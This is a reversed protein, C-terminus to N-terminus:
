RHWQCAALSALEATPNQCRRMHHVRSKRENQEEQTTMSWLLEAIIRELDNSQCKPRRSERLNSIRDTPIPCIRSATKGLEVCFVADITSNISTYKNSLVTPSQVSNSPARARGRLRVARWEGQENPLRQIEHVLPRKPVIAHHTNIHDRVGPRVIMRAVCRRTPLDCPGASASVGGRESVRQGASGSVWVVAPM